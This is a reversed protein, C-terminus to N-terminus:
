QDKEGLEYMFGCRPYRNPQILIRGDEPLDFCWGGKRTRISTTLKPKTQPLAPTASARTTTM